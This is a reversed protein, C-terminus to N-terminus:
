LLLTRIQNRLNLASITSWIGVTKAPKANATPRASNATKFLLNALNANIKPASVTGRLVSPVSLQPTAFCAHLFPIQANSVPMETETSISVQIAASANTKMRARPATSM